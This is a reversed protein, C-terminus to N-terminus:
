NWENLKHFTISRKRAPFGFRKWSAENILYLDDILYFRDEVAYETKGEGTGRGMDYHLYMANGQQEGAVTGQAHDATAQVKGADNVTLKWRITEEHGDTYRFTENLTGENGEWSGNAEVTFRALIEGGFDSETGVGSLRGVFYQRIDLKPEAKRYTEIDPACAVIWACAVLLPITRFRM